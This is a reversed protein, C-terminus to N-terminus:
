ISQYDLNFNNINTFGKVTAELCSTNFKWELKQEM